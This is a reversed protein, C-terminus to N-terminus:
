HHWPLQVPPDPREGAVLRRLLPALAYPFVPDAIAAVEDPACWRHGAYSAHEHAELQTPTADHRAVRYVFFDDRLVGQVFSLEAYGETFAVAHGLDVEAVALGVEERAERAAAAALSEGPAVGGGPTFWGFGTPSSAMTYRLLLVRDDADLLLLRATRRAYPQSPV